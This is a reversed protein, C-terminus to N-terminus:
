QAAGDTAGASGSTGTGPETVPTFNDVLWTGGTKVLKVEFRFPEPETPVYETSGKKKPYSVTLAGTVLATATDDRVAAVGTAYVQATRKVRLQSVTAEALPMGSKEFATRYKATIVQEVQKQYDPMKGSSDLQDPGYTNLRLAFQRAQAMIADRETQLPDDASFASSVRHWGSGTGDSAVRAGLYGLSGLLLVVLVGLVTWRVVASRRATVTPPATDPTDVGTETV